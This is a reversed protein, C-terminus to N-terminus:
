HIFLSNRFTFCSCFESKIFLKIKNKGNKSLDNWKLLQHYKCKLMEVLEEKSYGMKNFKSSSPNKLKKNGKNNEIGHPSPETSPTNAVEKFNHMQDDSKLSNDEFNDKLLNESEKDYLSNNETYDYEDYEEEYDSKEEVFMAKQLYVM